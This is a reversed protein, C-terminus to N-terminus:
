VEVRGLPRRSRNFPHFSGVEYVVLNESFFSNFIFHIKTKNLVKTQFMESELFFQALYIFFTYQDTHLTGTIRDSKLSVQANKVSKRFISL